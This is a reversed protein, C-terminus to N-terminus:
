NASFLSILLGYTLWYIWLYTIFVGYVSIQFDQIQVFFLTESRCKGSQPRWGDLVWLFDPLSVLKKLRNWHMDKRNPTYPQIFLDNVNTPTRPLGLFLFLYKNAAPGSKPKQM